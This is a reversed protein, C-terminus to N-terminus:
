LGRNEVFSSFLGISGFPALITGENVIAGSSSKTTFTFIGNLFDDNGVDLTSAFFSGMNVAADKGFYVGNPNVLYVTGNGNMQGLIQSIDSGIVRNLVVAEKGPQIFQVSEALDVQFQEYNIIAKDSVQIEMTGQTPMSFDAQGSMVKAGNPLAFLATAAIVFFLTSKM